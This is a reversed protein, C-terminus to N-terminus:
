PWSGRGCHERMAVLVVNKADMLLFGLRTLVYDDRLSIVSVQNAWVTTSDTSDPVHEVVDLDCERLLIDLTIYHCEGTLACSQEVAAGSM